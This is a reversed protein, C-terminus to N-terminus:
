DIPGSAMKVSYGGEPIFVNGADDEIVFRMSEEEAKEYVIYAKSAYGIGSGYAIALWAGEDGLVTVEEGAELMGIVGGGPTRRINLGGGATKVHGIYLAQATKETEEGMREVVREVIEESSM